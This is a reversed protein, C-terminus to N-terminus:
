QSKGRYENIAGRRRSHNEKEQRVGKQHCYVAVRDGVPDADGWGGRASGGSGGISGKQSIPKLLSSEHTRDQGRRRKECDQKEEARPKVGEISGEPYKRRRTRLLYRRSDAPKERGGEDGRTEKGTLAIEEVLKSCKEGNGTGGELIFM